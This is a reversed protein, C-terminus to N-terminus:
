TNRGGRGRKGGAGMGCGRRSGRGGLGRKMGGGCPGRGQGQMMHSGQFNNQIESNNITVKNKHNALIDKVKGGECTVIQLKAAKLVQEAKPGVEGTIVMSVNKSVVLQASQIGAGSGANVNPNAIAEFNDDIDDWIIFYACRGFRPDMQSELNDGSSTICIKM